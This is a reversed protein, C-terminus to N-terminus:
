NHVQGVGSEHNADAVLQILRAHRDDVSNADDDDVSFTALNAKRHGFTLVADELDVPPREDLTIVGDGDRDPVAVDLVAREPLSM